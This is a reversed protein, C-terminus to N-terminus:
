KNEESALLTVPVGSPNIAKIANFDIFGFDKNNLKGFSDKTYILFRKGGFSTVDDITVDEILAATEENLQYYIDYTNKADILNKEEPTLAAHAVIPYLLCIVSIFFCINKMM